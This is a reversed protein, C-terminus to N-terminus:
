AHHKYTTKLYPYNTNIEQLLKKEHDKNFIDIGKNLLDMQVITPIIAYRWWDEKIGKDNNTHDRIAKAYNLCPEVDQKSTITTVGTKEDTEIYDTVGTYPDYDFFECLYIEM